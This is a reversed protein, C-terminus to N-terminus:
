RSAGIMPQKKTLTQNNAGLLTELRLQKLHEELKISDLTSWINGAHEKVFFSRLYAGVFSEKNVNLM